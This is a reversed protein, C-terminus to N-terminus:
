PIVIALDRDDTVTEFQVSDPGTSRWLTWRWRCVSPQGQEPKCKKGTRGGRVAVASTKARDSKVRTRTQMQGSKGMKAVKPATAQAVHLVPVPSTPTEPSDTPPPFHGNFRELDVKCCLDGMGTIGTIGMSRVNCTRNLAHCTRKQPKAVQGLKAVNSISQESQALAQNACQLGRGPVGRETSAQRVRAPGTVSSATLAAATAAVPPWGEACVACAAGAWFGHTFNAFCSCGASGCTGHGNCIAAAAGAASSPCQRECSGGYFGASCTCAGTGSVGADCAGNAGCDPCTGACDAGFRGTACATCSSTSEDASWQADCVCGADRDCTGHGGCVAGSSPGLPCSANCRAGYFSAACACTGDGLIGDACSGHGSCASAGLTTCAECAPGFFGAACEDCVGSSSGLRWAADCRCTGDGDIGQSCNGHGGCVAGSGDGPCTGRCAPGWAGDACDACDPARWFGHTSNAFCTCQGDGEQGDACTGHDHCASCAGGACEATCNAGHYGPACVDCLEGSWFGVHSTNRSCRCVGDGGCLGNGSCQRGNSGRGCQVDCLAGHWEPQCEDCAAGAWFGSSASSLCSCTANGAQCTGRNNCPTAAGGPCM